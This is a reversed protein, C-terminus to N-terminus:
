PSITVSGADLSIEYYGHSDWPIVTGGQKVTGGSVTARVCKGPPFPDPLTWSYTVDSGDRAPQLPTILKQAVWYAGINTITDVWVDGLSKAHIVTSAFETFDVPRYAGDALDKFGHVLIIRWGGGAQAGDVLANMTKASAGEEPITCPLNFPSTTGTPTVLGEWVGRNVLFKGPAWQAYSMDGYPAALSWARVGFRSQIFTQAEEVGALEAAADHRHTHNGLEHGDKLAQEWVVSGAETKGTWLFFTFPVGLAQLEAYHSMQSQMADDLTYTVAGRYGAWNLIKLNGPAGSPKATVGTTVPPLGCKVVAAPATAGAVGETSPAGSSGGSAAIGGTSIPLIATTGAVSTVVPDTTSAGMTGGQEPVTTSIPAIGGTAADGGAGGTENTPQTQDNKAIYESGCAVALLVTITFYSRRM